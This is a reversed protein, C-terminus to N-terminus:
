LTGRGVVRIDGKGDAKVVIIETENTDIGSLGTILSGHTVM